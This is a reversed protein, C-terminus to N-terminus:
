ESRDLSGSNMIAWILRCGLLFSLFCGIIGIISLKEIGWFPENPFLVPPVNQALLISSGLFLASTMMGLVLRNVSSGLRRHDINIDIKGTRIQDVIGSLKRPMSEALKEVQMGLRQFKRIQRSPSLRRFLLKRHLSKLVDMIEFKPSLARATGELTVIVRLLLIAEQPLCLQHQRIVDFMANLASGIQFDQISRTSYQGIFDSLDNELMAEDLAVPFECLRALAASLLPVDSSMVAYLMEEIDERTAEGIRGVLGFDLLAIRGNPEVLINGPHPDAHFFGDDFILGVNLEVLEKTLQDLDLGYAQLANVDTLNKGVVFEMTLVKPTSLETIPKPIRVKKDNEFKAYFQYLNREESGFDLERKLSRTLEAVVQKPRYPKLDDIKEALQGLGTLIELDSKVTEAVGSRQIKVAVVEGNKLVAKHVQGISATATPAHDFHSFSEEVEQGLEAELTACISDYSEPAVHDQLLSLEAAMESGILDARTSLLQGLKIFTPGLQTLALRIRSEHSQRALSEGEPSKLSDKVFDINLRSIWDALGYKSLISLIETWRRLNRYLQPISHIPSRM